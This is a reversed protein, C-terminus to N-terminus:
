ISIAAQYIQPDPPCNTEHYDNHGAFYEINKDCCLGGGGGGLVFMKLDLACFM